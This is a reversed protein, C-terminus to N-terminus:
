CRDESLRQLARPAHLMELAEDCLLSAAAEVM